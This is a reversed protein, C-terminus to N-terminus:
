PYLCTSLQADGDADSVTSYTTVATYM